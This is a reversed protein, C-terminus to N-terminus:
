IAVYSAVLIFLSLVDEKKLQSGSMPGPIGSNTNGGIEIYLEGKDGFEIGNVEHDHDSVPLGTIIDEVIDLNNGRAVSV